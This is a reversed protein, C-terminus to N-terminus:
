PAACKAYVSDAWDQIKQALVSCDSGWDVAFFDYATRMNGTSSREIGTQEATRRTARSQKLKNDPPLDNWVASSWEDCHKYYNGVAWVLAALSKGTNKYSGGLARANPLSLPPAKAAETVRRIKAQLLVFSLGLLEEIYNTEDDVFNEDRNCLDGSERIQRSLEGFLRLFRDDEVDYKLIRLALSRERVKPDSTSKM